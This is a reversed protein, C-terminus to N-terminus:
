PWLAMIMMFQSSVAAVPAMKPVMTFRYYYLAAVYGELDADPNVEVITGEALGTKQTPSMVTSCQKVYTELPLSGRPYPTYSLPVVASFPTGLPSSLNLEAKVTPDETAGGLRTLTLKAPVPFVLFKPSLKFTIKEGVTAAYLSLTPVTSRSAPQTIRLIRTKGPLDCGLSFGMVANPAVIGESLDAIRAKGQALNIAFFPDM